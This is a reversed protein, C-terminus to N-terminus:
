ARSASLGEVPARPLVRALPRPLWWNWEGFLKMAAPMLVLRVLTADIGIAVANGLGIEKISTVGTGIFVAFVAVMILAASSITRASSALGEAVARTTDGTEEYRERIRTLLFVEYDMSLGFVTALVLPPTLWDVHGPSQFGFLGDVWGWQFVAVLVGFSAGVSLLNMVVAKLPLVISRLLVVLVVFSLALVFLVIKWMSDALMQNIDNLGAPGGGVMVEAGKVSHEARVRDVLALTSDAEGDARPVAVLLASRGDEAIRPAAVRVIAPDRRLDRRLADMADREVAGRHPKVLVHLPSADGPASVTEAAAFGAATESDPPLQHRAGIGTEMSLVPISLVLLAGGSLLVAIVPRRMVARTWRPWFDGSGGRWIRRHRVARSGFQRLLAPLLTAAALVSVAVVLIAGLAMSRIATNPMLWLGLLSVVVTLGSFAVAVGSTAMARTRADDLSRGAAVEERYRALVFLSYDVAVGIGIMSAMNTVFISMGMVQSLWYILAGTVLVSVFGLTLPLAAAALSGFVALLILAVIPFGLVEAEALDKKSVESLGSWMAGYGLLHVHVPGSQDETIGIRERLGRALDVTKDDGLGTSLPIITPRETSVRERGGPLIHVKPEARVATAVRERAARVQARSAGPQPDLIAFLPSREFGPYARALEDDVAQSQSDPVRFGGGSLNDQQRAAFPLAALLVLLWAALVLVRRRRVLGDLRLM